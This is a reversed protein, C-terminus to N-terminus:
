MTEREELAAAKNEERFDSSIRDLPVGLASNPVLERVVLTQKEFRGVVL